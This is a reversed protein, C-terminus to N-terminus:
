RNRVLQEYAGILNLRSGADASGPEVVDVQAVAPEDDGPPDARDVLEGVLDQEVPEAVPAGAPRIGGVRV